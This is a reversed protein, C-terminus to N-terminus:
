GHRVLRLRRAGDYSAFRSSLRMTSVVQGTQPSHVFLGHGIYIGVHGLHSFFVLDGPKLARIPVSHGLSFQEGSQHPLDIGVHAFVWRTFGSCDFGTRPSSGGWSYHVGRQSLAIRVIQQARLTTLRRMLAQRKALRQARTAVAKHVKHAVARPAHRATQAKAPLLGALALALLLPLTLLHHRV